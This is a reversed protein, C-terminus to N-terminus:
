WCTNDNYWYCNENELKTPEGISCEGYSYWALNVIIYLSLLRLREISAMAKFREQAGSYASWRSSESSLDM